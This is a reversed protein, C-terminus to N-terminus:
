LTEQAPSRTQTVGLWAQAEELCGFTHEPATFPEPMKGFPLDLLLEATWPADPSDGNRVLSAIIVGNLLVDYSGPALKSLRYSM